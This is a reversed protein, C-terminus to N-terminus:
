GQPRRADGLGADFQELAQQAPTVEVTVTAAGYRGSTGPDSLMRVKDAVIALGTSVAQLQQGTWKIDEDNLSQEYRKMLLELLTPYREAARAAAELEKAKIYSRTDAYSPDRVWESIASQSAGTLAAAKTESGSLLALAVAEAKEEVTFRRRPM